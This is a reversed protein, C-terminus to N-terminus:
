VADCLYLHPEQSTWQVLTYLELLQESGRPQTWGMFVEMREWSQKAQHSLVGHHLHDWPVKGRLYDPDSPSPMWDRHHGWEGGALVSGLKAAPGQHPGIATGRSRLHGM